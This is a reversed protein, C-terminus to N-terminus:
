KLCLTELEPLRPSFDPGPSESTDPSATGSHLLCCCSIGQYVVAVQASLRLESRAAKQLGVLLM